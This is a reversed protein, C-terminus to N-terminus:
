FGEVTQGPCRGPDLRAPRSSAMQPLKCQSTHRHVNAVGSAECTTGARLCVWSHQGTFGPWPEQPCRCTCITNSCPFWASDGGSSPWGPESPHAPRASVEWAVKEGCWDFGM